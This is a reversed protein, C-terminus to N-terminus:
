AGLREAIMKETIVVKKMKANGPAEYMIDTMLREMEARLGRAGTKRAIAAKALAKLAGDEFSLEVGDMQLLKQYQRVLANKPETMVRVLDEETLEKMATIIPLRGTFEPILGFKVLDEPRVDLAESKSAAKSASDEADEEAGFGIARKGTREGVIKDLGVFAGGCIFLINTTDVEIYEQDPHKRGGKPPIRCVTGEVIKLLAQQVGEGSVDRTISVNDTKSAIKDIEDVYIIGRKALEVDGNANQLLYRVLNEVDEGVYGAQTLVTADGIAFPVGLIKALTKAMLTKGTGTPGLLLINSKEIEVDDFDAKVGKNGQKLQSSELRRYHNHVAVSLVKKTEEHGIVHQDLFAKIEKASPTPPLPAIKKKGAAEKEKPDSIHLMEHAYEICDVCINAELGPVLPVDKGSRGCFSCVDKPKKM